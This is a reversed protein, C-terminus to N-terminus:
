LDDFVVGDSAVDDHFVLLGALLESQLLDHYLRLAIVLRHEVQLLPLLEVGLVDDVEVSGDLLVLVVFQGDDELVPHEVEM